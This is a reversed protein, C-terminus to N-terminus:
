SLLKRGPFISCSSVLSESIPVLITLQGMQMWPDATLLCSSPVEALFLQELSPGALQIDTSVSKYCIQM